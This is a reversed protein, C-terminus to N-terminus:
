WRLPRRGDDNRRLDARRADYRVLPIGMFHERDRQFTLFKPTVPDARLAGYFEHGIRIEGLPCGTLEAYCEVLDALQTAPGAGGGLEPPPTALSTLAAATLDYGELWARRFFRETNSGSGYPPFRDRKALAAAQGSEFAAQHAKNRYPATM